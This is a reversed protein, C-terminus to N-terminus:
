LLFNVHENKLWIMVFATKLRDFSRHFGIM